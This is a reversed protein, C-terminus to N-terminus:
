NTLILNIAPTMIKGDWERGSNSIARSRKRWKGGSFHFSNEEETYNIVLSPAYTVFSNTKKSKTDKYEFLYKNEEIIMWELGIVVGEKPFLIAHKSLDVTNKQMGKKVSVIVEEYLIDENPISDKFNYIRIKLKANKIKSNSYFIIKKLFPTENYKEEFKFLKGYIWPKDGSLQSHHIKKSDGIELEKTKKPISIVVENLEFVKPKLLILESKSSAKKVEYGLASFVLLKEEKIDLSFSGNTESTTGITENEVWINVYPIPEGSISDKVVGRIQATLSFSIFFFLFKYM